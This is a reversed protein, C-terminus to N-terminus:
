AATVALGLRRAATAMGAAFTVPKAGPRHAPAVPIGDPARLNLGRRRMWATAPPLDGSAALVRQVGRAIWSDFPSFLRAAEPNPMASMRGLRGVTAAFRAGAHDSVFPAPDQKAMFAEAL